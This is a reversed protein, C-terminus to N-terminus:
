KQKNLFATKGGMTVSLEVSKKCVAEPVEGGQAEFEKLTSQATGFHVTPKIIDALSNKNLFDFFDESNVGGVPYYKMKSTRRPTLGCELKCSDMGNQTLLSNLQEKAVDLKEKRSTHEKKLAEVAGMENCVHVTLDSIQQQVTANDSDDNFMDEVNQEPM